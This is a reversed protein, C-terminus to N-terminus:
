SNESESVTEADGASQAPYITFIKSTKEGNASTFTIIRRQPSKLDAGSLVQCSIKIEGEQDQLGCNPLVSGAQAVTSHSAVITMDKIVESTAVAVNNAHTLQDVGRGQADASIQTIHLVSGLVTGVALVFILVLGLTYGSDSRIYKKM